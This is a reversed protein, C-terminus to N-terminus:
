GFLDLLMNVFQEHLETEPTWPKCATPLMRAALKECDDRAFTVYESKSFMKMLSEFEAFGWRELSDLADLWVLLLRPCVTIILIYMLVTIILIYMLIIFFCSVRRWYPPEKEASTYGISDWEELPGHSIACVSASTDEAEM